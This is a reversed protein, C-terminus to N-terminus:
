PHSRDDPELRRAAIRQRVKRIYARPDTKRELGGAVMTRVTGFIPREPWPRDHRGYLWAVGACSNPDRGDLFYRDNLVRTHEFGEAPDASWAIIRKGWYMRMYNHMYGTERLELMAANWYPDHTEAAILADLDYSAERPDSAHKALTARAWDPLGSYRDYDAVYWAHNIALERRVVLEESFADIAQQPVAVAAARTVAEHWVRQAAIHGFHLYMGLYSVADRQPQSRGEAYHVLRSDLFRELQRWAAREGGTFWDSVSAAVSAPALRRALAHPDDLAASVDEGAGPLDADSPWACAVDVQVPPTRFREAVRWLKPRLTRAAYEAKDSATAVPVIAEGEIEVVGVPAAEAVAHRWARQHRLYGRDCVLAAASRAAHLAVVDPRGLRAVFGIGRQRAADRVERLGQLMFVFARETAGPYGADLGVVIVVPRQWRSALALAHELAANDRLRQAQQMWYVVPGPAPGAADRLIHVRECPTVSPAALPHHGSAISVGWALATSRQALTADGGSGRPERSRVM